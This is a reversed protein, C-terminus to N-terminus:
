IYATGYRCKIKSLLIWRMGLLQRTEFLHLDAEEM